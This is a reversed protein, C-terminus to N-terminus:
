PLIQFKKDGIEIGDLQIKLVYTGQNLIAPLTWATFTSGEPIKSTFKLLEKSEGEKAIELNFQFPGNKFLPFSLYINKNRFLDEVKCGTSEFMQPKQHSLCFLSLDTTPFGKPRLHDPQWYANGESLIESEGLETLFFTPFSKKRRGKRPSYVEFHLHPGTSYGTNGSIGIKQGASVQDGVSVLVGSKQLHGYMAITGDSHSILVYNAKEILKPDFGGQSYQDQLSVVLGDRAAFIPTGEQLVFDLSYKSDGTHAQKGDYGQGIWSKGHYPLTYIYSDEHVSDLKGFSAISRISFKWPQGSDIPGIEAVKKPERSDIVLSLSSNPLSSVNTGSIELDVTMAGGLPLEKAELFVSGGTSDYEVKFCVKRIDCTEQTIARIPHALALFGFILYSVRIKRSDM